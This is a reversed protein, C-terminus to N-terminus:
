FPGLRPSRVAATDHEVVDAAFVERRPPRPEKVVHVRDENRESAGVKMDGVRDGSALAEVSPMDVPFPPEPHDYVEIPVM